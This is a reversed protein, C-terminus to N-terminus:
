QQTDATPAKRPMTAQEDTQTPTNSVDDRVAVAHHDHDHEEEVVLPANRPLTAQEDTHAPKNSVIIKSKKTTTFVLVVAFLVAIALMAMRAPTFFEDKEPPTIDWKENREPDYRFTTRCTPCTVIVVTRADVRLVSNCVSDPCRTIRAEDGSPKRKHREQRVGGARLGDDYRQKLEPNSLTDFAANIDRSKREAKTLLTPSHHFRDPHWVQLLLRYAQTIEEPNASESIELISYYNEM